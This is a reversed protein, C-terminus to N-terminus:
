LRLWCRESHSQPTLTLIYTYTSYSLDNDSKGGISYPSMQTFHLNEPILVLLQMLFLVFIYVINIYLLRIDYDYTYHLYVKLASLNLREDIEPAPPPVLSGLHKALPGCWGSFLCFLSRCLEKKMLSGYMEVVSM